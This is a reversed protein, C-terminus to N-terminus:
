IMGPLWVALGPVVILLAMLALLVFFYPIVARAIRSITEGTIGQIVFLNFGVPPTLQAMEITVVLFIGFWLPDWGASVVAPLTIPLTVVIMSMGDLICGLVIYLALLLIVVGYPGLSAGNVLGVVYTPIGLYNFSVSLFAGGSTILALMSSTRVTAIAADYLAKFSLDRGLAALGIAGVVGIAAAETPSAFGGYLGGILLVILASIPGLKRISEVRDNWTFVDGGAYGRKRYLTLSMTMLSFGLALVLGPVIGAIFLKLISVEALMGYVIMPLSPPILFGITSAGALSGISLGRDYGRKELENLTIRGVTATTAASSGSVAAFLTSAIINIHLLRGPLRTTWPALGTFMNDSIRTRFLVEAMLIFLPLALLETSSITNFLNQALVKDVPLTHFSELGLVGTAMLALGIWLGGALLVAFLVILSAIAISM